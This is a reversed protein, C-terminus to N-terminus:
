VYFDIPNLGNRCKRIDGEDGVGVWEMNCITGMNRIHQMCKWMNRMGWCCSLNGLYVIADWLWLGRHLFPSIHWLRRRFRMM